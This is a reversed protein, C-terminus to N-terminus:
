NEPTSSKQQQKLFTQLHTLQQQMNSVYDGQAPAVTLPNLTFVTIGQEALKHVLEEAPETECLMLSIKKQEQLAKLRKWDETNPAENSKWHLHFMTWDCRRALYQYVPRRSYWELGPYDEQIQDLQENIPKLSDNLKELNARIENESPPNLKILREAIAEAQRAMLQPDLWFFAVTGAHSHAGGSGHSHVEFDPVTILADKIALSSRLVKSRPLSLKKVWDAFDAGNTVILDAQQITQITADGPLWTEPDEAPPVPNLIQFEPGALSEVIFQLPYNVVVVLRPGEEAVPRQIEETQSQCGSVALVLCLVSIKFIPQMM